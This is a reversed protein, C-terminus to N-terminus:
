GGLLHGPTLKVIAISFFLTAVGFLVLVLVWNRSRRRRGLAESEARSLPPLPANDLNM